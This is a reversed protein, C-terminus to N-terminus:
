VGTFPKRREGAGDHRAVKEDIELSKGRWILYTGFGLTAAIAAYIQGFRAFGLALTAGLHGRSRAHQERAAGSWGNPAAGGGGFSPISKV